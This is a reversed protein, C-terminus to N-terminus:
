FYQIAITAPPSSIRVSLTLFPAVFYRMPGIFDLEDSWHRVWFKIIPPTSCPGQPRPAAHTFPIPTHHPTDGGWQPLTQPM